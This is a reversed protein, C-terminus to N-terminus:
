VHGLREIDLFCGLDDTDVYRLTMDIMVKMKLTMFIVQIVESSGSIWPGEEYQSTKLTMYFVCREPM